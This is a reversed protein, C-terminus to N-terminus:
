HKVLSSGFLRAEVFNPPWRNKYFSFHEWVKSSHKAIAFCLQLSSLLLLFMKRWLQKERYNSVLHFYIVEFSEWFKQPKVNHQVTHLQMLGCFMWPWLGVFLLFICNLSDKLYDMGIVSIINWLLIFTFPWPFIM